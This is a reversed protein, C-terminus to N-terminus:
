ESVPVVQYEGDVLVLQRDCHLEAFDPQQGAFGCVVREGNSRLEAVKQQLLANDSVPAYIGASVTKDACSLAALTKLSVNFGTAPRSRGFAEGVHDYRGGNGIAEGLGPAYAAFVIGTHYHYGRLECLDLYVEADPATQNLQSVVEALEDLAAELEAPAEAFAERAKDLISADGALEVLQRFFDAIAADTINEALWSELEPIAKRQLLDFLAREQADSLEAVELLSRYIGVHGIDLNINEMGAARLTEVLLNIVELDAALSSEGYLEVGVQIPCRSQLPSRPRTYLVTGSYCLRCPGDLRLSHADMRTTQPTFDARVGMMRGSLQDTVKFTLLDLDSGTGSLLSESFEVMPPIVLDYGWSHYLDLLRRRLREVQLAQNPLIEEVGDPLLWRDVVAM